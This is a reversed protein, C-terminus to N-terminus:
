SSSSGSEGVTSQGGGYTTGAAFRQTSQALVDAVRDPTATPQTEAPKPVAIRAPASPAPTPDAPLRAAPPQPVAVNPAWAGYMVAGILLSLALISLTVDFTSTIQQALDNGFVSNITGPNLPKIRPVLAVGLVLRCVTLVVLVGLVPVTITRPASHVRSNVFLWLALVTTLLDFAMLMTTNYPPDPLMLVGSIWVDTIRLVAKGACWVAILALCSRIANRWLEASDATRASGVIPTAVMAAVAAWALYGEYGVGVTGTNQAIGHFADLLRGVPLFWVLAGASLTAGGLLVVALQSGPRGSVIWRGAVIAPALAVLGYLLAAIATVLNQTGAEGSIGPLVFRTRFYLNFLTALVALAISLWGIVRCLRVARQQDDTSAAGAGAALLAGTLGSWAGPGVGPPVVGTGGYRVSIVISFATFGAVLVLYPATLMLRRTAGGIFLAALSLLTAVLLIAFVWGRTEAIGLGFHINWPMLLGLTLLVAVAAIRTRGPRVTAAHQVNEAM